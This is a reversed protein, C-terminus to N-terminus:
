GLTLFLLCANKRGVLDRQESSSTMLLIGIWMAGLVTEGGGVGGCPTGIRFHSDM